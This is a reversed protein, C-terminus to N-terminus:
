EHARLHTYSVPGDYCDLDGVVFGGGPFYIIAPLAASGSAVPTYVRLPIPGLPGSAKIDETKGIPSAKPDALQCLWKFEERAQAPTKEWTPFHALQPMQQFLAQITPDLPM